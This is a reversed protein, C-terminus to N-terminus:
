ATPRFVQRIGLRQLLYQILMATIQANPHNTTYFLQRKQFNDLIFQGIRVGFQQDMATLRRKEFNHLREFNIVGPVSLSRYAILRQERDPIEKRLRALLGDHYLFTLNPWEREYAEKDGPGNYHDFPWLSAFRLLPFKIMRVNDRIYPRLPYNEWDRIDQILLVDSHELETKGLEHLNKHLGVFHYKASVRHNFGSARVLGEYVTEAQCNGVILVNVSRRGVISLSAIQSLEAHKRLSVANIALNANGLQVLRFDFSMQANAECSLERPVDFEIKAGGDALMQTTFAQRAVVACGRKRLSRRTETVVQVEFAPVSNSQSVGGEGRVTLQYRGEALRLGSQVGRLECAGAKGKRLRGLLRWEWSITPEAEKEVVQRLEVTTITLDANALHVLRLDVVVDQGGELALEAPVVFDTSADGAELEAATFDRWALPTETTAPGSSLSTWSWSGGNQWRPRAVVEMGLVPQTAMRPTGSRCQLSLRYRGQPLQLIPRGTIALCGARRSRSVTFGEGVRRAIATRELRGLIRWRRAPPRVNDMEITRLDVATITLDANGLHFFRFEIRAEDGAGLGLSPPIVFDLSAAGAWLEAANLDLWALQVRNMVIVEVGLVPQSPMRPKGCRCDFNLRYAGSPLQWYPGYLLCGAPERRRVTAIGDACRCGIAAKELRRLVRWEATKREPVPEPDVAGVERGDVISSM